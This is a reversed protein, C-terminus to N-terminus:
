MFAGAGTARLWLERAQEGDRLPRQEEHRGLM